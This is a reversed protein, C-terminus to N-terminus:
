ALSRALVILASVVSVGIVVPRTYGRDLMPAVRSSALYGLLVAPILPLSLELETRGLHGAVALAGISMLAGALLYAAMTARLRPGGVDAYLIAVTPGGIGVTTGGFGSVFGGGLKTATTRPISVGLATTLAVLLISLGLVLGLGDQSLATVAFVGVVVGPVRGVILWRVERLDVTERERIVVLITIPLALLLLVAPVTAPEILALIPAAVLNQGFGISGALTAALVVVAFALALEVPSM